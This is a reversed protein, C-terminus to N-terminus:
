IKSSKINVKGEEIKLLLQDIVGMCREYIDLLDEYFYIKFMSPNKFNEDTNM